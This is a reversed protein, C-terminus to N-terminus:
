TLGCEEAQEAAQKVLRRATSVIRALRRNPSPGSRAAAREAAAVAHGAAARAERAANQLIGSGATSPADAPPWPGHIFLLPTYCQEVHAAAGLGATHLQLTGSVALDLATYDFLAFCTATGRTGHLAQETLQSLSKAWVCCAWAADADDAGREHRALWLAVHTHLLWMVWVADRGAPAMGPPALSAVLKGLRATESYLRAQEAAAFADPLLDTPPSDSGAFIARSIMFPIVTRAIGAAATAMRDVRGDPTLAYERLVLADIALPAPEANYYLLHLLLAVVVGTRDRGARCHIYVPGVRALHARISAPTYPRAPAREGIEMMKVFTHVLWDRVGPEATHYNEQTNDAPSELFVVGYDRGWAARYAADVSSRRLDLVVKPRGLNEYRGPTPGGRTDYAAGRLLLGAELAGRLPPAGDGNGAQWAARQLAFTSVGVDRWNRAMEECGDDYGAM